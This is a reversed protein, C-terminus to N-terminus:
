EDKKYKFKYNKCQSKESKNCAYQIAGGTAGIYKAAARASEFEKILNWELDYM